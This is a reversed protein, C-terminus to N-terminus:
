LDPEPLRSLDNVLRNRPIFFGLRPAQAKGLSKFAFEAVTDIAFWFGPQEGEVIGVTGTLTALPEAVGNIEIDVQDNGVLLLRQVVASNIGPSPRLVARVLRLQPFGRHLM